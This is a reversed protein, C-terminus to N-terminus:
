YWKRAYHWEGLLMAPIWCLIFLGKRPCETYLKRMSYKAGYVGYMIYLLSHKILIKFSSQIGNVNYSLYVMSRDVMGKPWSRMRKGITMDTLGGELYDGIYIGKNIHVMKMPGSIRLWIGDEPYCKEGDFEPFPHSKLADAFWVEAKDSLDNTLIRSEFFSCIMEDKEFTKGNVRGDPFLRWFSYGCLNTTNGYKEHYFLITEVSDETLYDDSDVIFILESEIHQYSYNLATQKGGNEKYYYRLQFPADDIWDNVLDGTGDTSGDDIVLWEFDLKTQHCLSNYLKILNNKRQYTPTLITLTM